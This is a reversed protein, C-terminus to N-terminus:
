LGLQQTTKRVTTLFQDVDTGAAAAEDFLEGVLLVQAVGKTEQDYTDISSARGFAALLLQEAARVNMADRDSGLRKRVEAVYLVVESPLRDDDAFRWHALSLFAGAVAADFGAGEGAAQLRAIEAELDFGDSGGGVLM